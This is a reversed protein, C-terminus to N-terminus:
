AISLPEIEDIADGIAERAKMVEYTAQLNMWFRDSTGFYRGLRVATDGSIGLEGRVIRELKSRQMKCAKAVGYATLSLERLFEDRLLTGPHVPPHHAIIEVAKPEATEAPQEKPRPSSLAEKLLKGTRTRRGGAGTARSPGVAADRRDTRSRRSDRKTTLFSTTAMSKKAM